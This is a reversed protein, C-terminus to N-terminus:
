GNQKPVSAGPLKSIPTIATIARGVATNTLSFGFMLSNFKNNSMITRLAASRKKMLKWRLSRDAINTSALTLMYEQFTSNQGFLSFWESMRGDSLAVAMVPSLDKITFSINIETPLMDKSWGYEPSGRKIHISDIIGLPIAFMGKCYARVLFPSTYSNQGVARPFAGALMMALPIYLSYFISFPDGYPTRLQFDFTYSKNFQSSSWIEPMDVFGSGKLMEAGGEIGVSKLAGEAVSTIASYIGKLIKGGSTNSLASLNFTRERGASVQANITGLIEPEKTSNTCSEDSSTSKEIRFGVYRMAETFGLAGGEVVNDAIQAWMNKEYSSNKVFEAFQTDTAAHGRDDNTGYHNKRNLISLIDLGHTKLLDPVGATKNDDDKGVMSVLDMNAALHALIVNVMKYYLSMTPMFDYYKTPNTAGSVFNILEGFWKLPQLPLTLVTGLTQGVISGIKKITSTDGTNMLTALDTNYMKTVFDSANAFDPIGFSLYLLQQQQDFTENYVRGMGENSAAVGTRNVPHIIDDDENFQYYSNIADNGGVHTDRRKETLSEKPMAALLENIQSTTVPASGPPLSNPDTLIYKLIDRNNTFNPGLKVRTIFRNDIEQTYSASAGPM